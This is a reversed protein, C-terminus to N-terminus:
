TMMRERNEISVQDEPEVVVITRKTCDDVISDKRLLAEPATNTPMTMTGLSDIDTEFSLAMQHKSNSVQSRRYM